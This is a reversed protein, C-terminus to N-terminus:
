AYELILQALKDAGIGAHHLLYRELVASTYGGYSVNVSSVDGEVCDRWSRIEVVAGHRYILVCHFGPSESSCDTIDMIRVVKEPNYDYHHNPRLEQLSQLITPM